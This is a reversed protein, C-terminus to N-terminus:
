HTPSLFGTINRGLGVDALAEYFNNAALSGKAGILNELMIRAQHALPGQNPDSIYNSGQHALYIDIPFDALLSQCQWGTAQAISKLSISDFYSLHDPIAIWFRRPISENALLSEQLDSFDNPVTVILTGTDKVINRISNLLTVPDTVHELVNNLWILDYRKNEKIRRQLLEFINGQEVYDLISPNMNKIGSISHDLGEIDWGRKKSEALAFGEGCGVDLVKGIQFSDGKLSELKDLKQSIKIKIVQLEEESYKRRYSGCENQYYKNAYYDSLEQESPKNIVQWFGLPHKELRTDNM